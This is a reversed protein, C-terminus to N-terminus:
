IPRDLLVISGAHEGESDSAMDLSDSLSRSVFGERCLRLTRELAWSFTHVRSLKSEQEESPQPAGNGGILVSLGEM